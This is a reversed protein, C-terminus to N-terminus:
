TRLKYGRKFLLANIVIMIVVAVAIALMSWYANADSHGLMGYRVTNIMYFIPDLHTLTKFPEPLLGVSYFTGGLFILPTLIFTQYSSIQENTKSILGVFVGVSAFFFAM